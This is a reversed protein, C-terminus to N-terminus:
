GYINEITNRATSLYSGDDEFGKFGLKAKNLNVIDRGLIKLFDQFELESKNECHARSLM